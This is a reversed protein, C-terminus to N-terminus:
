IIKEKRSFYHLNEVNKKLFENSIKNKNTENIFDKACVQKVKVNVLNM